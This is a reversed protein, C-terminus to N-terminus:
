YEEDIVASSNYLDPEDNENGENDEEDDSNSIKNKVYKIVARCEDKSFGQDEMFTVIEKTDYGEELLEEIQEKLEEYENEYEFIKRM